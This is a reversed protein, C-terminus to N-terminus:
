SSSNSVFKSAMTKAVTHQPKTGLLARSDSSTAFDLISLITLAMKEEFYEM